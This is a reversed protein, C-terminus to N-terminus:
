CPAARRALGEGRGLSPFTSRLPTPLMYIYIYIYIYYVINREVLHMQVSAAQHNSSGRWFTTGLLRIGLLVEWKEYIISYYSIIYWLSMYYLTSYCLM